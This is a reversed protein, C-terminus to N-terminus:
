LSPHVLFSFDHTWIKKRVFFFNNKNENIRKWNWNYFPGGNSLKVCWLMRLFPSKFFHATFKLGNHPSTFEKKSKKVEDLLHPKFTKISTTTSTMNTVVNPLNFSFTPNVHFFDLFVPRPGNVFFLCVLYGVGFSPQSELTGVNLM